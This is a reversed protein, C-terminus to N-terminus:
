IALVKCLGDVVKMDESNLEGASWPCFRARVSWLLPENWRPNEKQLPTYGISRAAAAFARWCPTTACGGDPWISLGSLALRKWDFRPGPDLKRGVAMDSHGLIGRRPISWRKILESLLQELSAMQVASFPRRGNNSLEIGLSRSNVDSQGLWAGAGAHWARMEEDVLKYVLGSGSILYHASVEHEPACLRELAERTSEMGTYHIVILEPKGGGRRKGFNPSPVHRQGFKGSKVKVLPPLAGSEM